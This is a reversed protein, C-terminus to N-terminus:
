DAEVGPDRRDLAEVWYTAYNLLDLLTDRLGEHIARRGDRILGILSQLRKAKLFVMQFYSQHGLPFYDRIEIGSSNYDAGKAARLRALELHVPSLAALTSPTAAYVAGLIDPPRWGEPKVADYGQSGPRKSVEGRKKDMNARQVERFAAGPTVGMEVLAGLAIYIVDVFGDIIEALDEEDDSLGAYVDRIEQIEEEIHGLRFEARQPSLARPSKPIELGVIERNFREVGALMDEVLDLREAAGELQEATVRFGTTEKAM